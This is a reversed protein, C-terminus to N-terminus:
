RRPFRAVIADQAGLGGPVITAEHFATLALSRSWTGTQFATQYWAPMIGDLKGSKV